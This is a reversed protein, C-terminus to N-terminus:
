RSKDASAAIPACRTSCGLRFCFSCLRERGSGNPPASSAAGRARTSCQRRSCPLPRAAPDLMEFDGGLTHDTWAGGDDVYYTGSWFWGPHFRCVNADGSGNVNAWASAIWDPQVERGEIDRTLHSAVARAMNVVEAVRAGGWTLLDRDSHWGGDNSAQITPTTRRRELILARLEKNRAEADPTDVSAVPTPFLNRTSIVLRTM